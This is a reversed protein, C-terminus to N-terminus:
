AKAVATPIAAVQEVMEVLVPVAGHATKELEFTLSRTAFTPLRAEAGLRYRVFDLSFFGPNQELDAAALDFDNDVRTVNIEEVDDRVVRVREISADDFHVRKITLGAGREAFDFPTRGAAPANWTLKKMRPMFFRQSQSPLVHARARITPAATEAPKGGKLTVHIFWLEGALTVLDTQRMGIKTKMSDDGFPIVYRGEQQYQKRHKMVAVLEKGSIEYIASGDKAVEIREIDAPDTINTVLEISHYTPGSVIRLNCRNGWGVGEFPDLEKPRPAFPKTMLDM